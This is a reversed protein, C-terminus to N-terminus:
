IVASSTLYKSSFAAVYSPDQCICNGSAHKAAPTTLCSGIPKLLDIKTLAAMTATRLGSADAVVEIALLVGAPASQFAIPVAMARRDGGAGTGFM